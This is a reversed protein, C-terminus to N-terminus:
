WPWPPNWCSRACPRPRPPGEEAAKVMAAEQAATKEDTKVVAPQKEAPAPQEQAKPAAPEEEADEDITDEDWEEDILNRAEMAEKAFDEGYLNIMEQKSLGQEEEASTPASATCLCFALLPLLQYTKM